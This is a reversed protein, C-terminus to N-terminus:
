QQRKLTHKNGSENTINLTNDNDTFSVKFTMKGNEPSETVLTANDPLSYKEKTDAMKPRSTTMEGNEAFTYFMDGGYAWKGIIKEKSSKGCGTFVTIIAFLLTAAILLRFLSTGKSNM